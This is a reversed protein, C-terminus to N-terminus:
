CIKLKKFGAGILGLLGSGLLLLTSPEPVPPPDEADHSFPAFPGNFGYGFADFHVWSYGTVTLSYANIQGTSPYSCSGDPCKGGMYDGIPSDTLSFDGLSYTSWSMGSGYIGHPSLYQNNSNHPNVGTIPSGDSGSALWSPAGPTSPDTLLSTTTPSFSVSGSESSDYALVLRVDEITGVHGINGMVWLTFPSVNDLVWTETGFDYNGGEIYLQLAPIAFASSMGLSVCFVISLLILKKLM